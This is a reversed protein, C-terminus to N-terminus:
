SRASPDTPVRLTTAMADTMSLEFGTARATAVATLPVTSSGPSNMRPWSPRSRSIVSLTMAPSHRLGLTAPTTTIPSSGIVVPSSIARMAGEPLGTCNTFTCGAPPVILAIASPVRMAARMTRSTDFILDRSNGM